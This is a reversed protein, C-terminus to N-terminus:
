PRAHAGLFRIAEALTTHAAKALAPDFRAALEFMSATASLREALMGDGMIRAAPLGFATAAAGVGAVIPGSDADGRVDVGPPWERFGVAPGRDVFYHRKVAAWWRRALADDLEHLYITSFTLACGRPLRAHGAHGTAESWPLALAGDFASALVFRIWRAAPEVAFDTGHARDFRRLSALTATQDAPWRYTASKGTSFSAAHATPDALSRARLTASVSRHREGDLCPGLRDAAGLILNLHSLWLSDDALRPQQRILVLAQHYAQEVCHRAGVRDDSADSAACGDAVFSLALMRFGVSTGEFRGHQLMASLRLGLGSASASATALLAVLLASKSPRLTTHM